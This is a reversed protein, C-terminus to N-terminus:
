EEKQKERKKKESRRKVEEKRRKKKEEKRLHSLTKSKTTKNFELNSNFKDMKQNIKELTGKLASSKKFHKTLDGNDLSKKRLVIKTINSSM